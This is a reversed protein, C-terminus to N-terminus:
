QLACQAIRYFSLGIRHDGNRKPETPEKATRMTRESGDHGFLGAFFFAFGFILHRPALKTRAALRICGIGGLHSRLPLFLQRLGAVKVPV